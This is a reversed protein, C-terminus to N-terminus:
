PTEPLAGVIVLVAAQRRVKKDPNSEQYERGNQFSRLKNLFIGKETIDVVEGFMMSQTFSAPPYMVTQGIQFPVGRADSIEDIHINTM